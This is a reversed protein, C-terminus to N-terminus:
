RWAPGSVWSVLSYRTGWELPFVKHQIISPFLIVDGQESPVDLIDGGTSMKLEGGKYGKPSSLQCVISLKRHWNGPGIDVHYDYKAGKGEYETFQLFETFGTLDLSFVNNAENVYGKYREYIWKTSDDPPMWRVNSKRYVAEEGAFTSGSSKQYNKALSKIKECEEVSFGNRFFYYNLLQKSNDETQRVGFYSLDGYEDITEEPSKLAHRNSPPTKVKDEIMEESNTNLRRVDRM